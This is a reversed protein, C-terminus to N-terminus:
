LAWYSGQSTHSLPNLALQNLEWDLACAQTAPWAGLKTHGPQTAWNTLTSDWYAMTSPEIEPWPVYLFWGIFVFILLFVLWQKERERSGREGRERERQFWYNFLFNFQANRSPLAEEKQGKGRLRGCLVGQQRTGSPYTPVPNLSLVIKWLQFFFTLSRFFIIAAFKPLPCHFIFNILTQRNVMVNFWSWEGNSTVDYSHYWLQFFTQPPNERQLFRGHSRYNSLIWLQWSDSM